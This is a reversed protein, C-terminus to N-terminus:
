RDYVPSGLTEGRSSSISQERKRKEEPSRRGKQERLKKELAEARRKRKLHASSDSLHPITNRRQHPRAHLVQGVGEMASSPPNGLAPVPPHPTPGDVAWSPPPRTDVAWPEELLPLIGTPKVEVVVM